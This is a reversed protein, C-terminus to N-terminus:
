KKEIKRKNNLFNIYKDEVTKLLNSSKRESFNDIENADIINELIEFIKTLITDDIKYSQLTAFIIEKKSADKENNINGFARGGYTFSTHSIYDIKGEKIIKFISNVKEENDVNIKLLYVLDDFKYINNNELDIDENKCFIKREEDYNYSDYKEIEQQIGEYRHIGMNWAIGLNLGMWRIDYTDVESSISYLIGKKLMNSYNGLMLMHKEYFAKILEGIQIDELYSIEGTYNAINTIFITFFLDKYYKQEIEYNEVIEIFASITKSLVRVNKVNNKYWIKDICSANTEFFVKVKEKIGDEISLKNNLNRTALDLTIKYKTNIKYFVSEIKCEFIDNFFNKDIEENNCIVIVKMNYREILENIIGTIVNFKEIDIDEKIKELSNDFNKFSSEIEKFEKYLENLPIKEFPNQRINKVRYWDRNYRSSYNPINIRELDDFVFISKEKLDKFEYDSKLADELLGGIIPIKNLINIMYKRFSKDQKEFINKLEQLVDKRDKMGFCSIRYVERREYKFYNKFFEDVTYTKGVGWDGTIVFCKKDDNNLYEFLNRNIEDAKEVKKRQLYRKSYYYIIKFTAIIFFIIIYLYIINKLTPLIMIYIGNVKIAINEDLLAVIITKIFHKTSEFNYILLISINIINLGNIIKIIKKGISKM